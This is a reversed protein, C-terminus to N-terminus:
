ATDFTRYGDGGEALSRAIVMKFKNMEGIVDPNEKRPMAATGAKLLIDWAEREKGQKHLVVAKGYYSNLYSGDISIARNFTELAKDLLGQHMYAAAVNNIAIADSPHYKIAEEYYRMANEIDDQKIFINGMLILTWINQPNLNLAEIITNTAENLRGLMMLAQGKMRFAEDNKKDVAIVKDFYPLAAEYKGENCLRM